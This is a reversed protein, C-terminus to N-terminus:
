YRRVMLIVLESHRMFQKSFLVIVLPCSDTGQGITILSTNFFPIQLQGSKYEPWHLLSLVEQGGSISPIKWVFDVFVKGVM